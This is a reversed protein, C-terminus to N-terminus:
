LIFDTNEWFREFPAFGTYNTTRLILAGVPFLTLLTTSNPGHYPQWASAQAARAAAPPTTMRESLLQLLFHPVMIRGDTQGDMTLNLLLAVGPCGSSSSPLTRGRKVVLVVDGRREELQREGPQWRWRWRM